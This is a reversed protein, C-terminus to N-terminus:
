VVSKRDKGRLIGNQLTWNAGGEWYFEFDDKLTKGALLDVFEGPAQELKEEMLQWIGTSEPLELIKIDKFRLHVPDGGGQIQLEIAGKFSRRSHTEAMKEGDMFTVIYDGICHLEFDTWRDKKMKKSYAKALDYISGTPNRTEKKPEYIEMEFGNFAPRGIKAHAPDRILIGSNAGETMMRFKLRLKFNAYDGNTVLWGGSTIGQELRGIIEGNEVTWLGSGVKEWGTLDKGNFLSKWNERQCQIQGCVFLLLAILAFIISNRM